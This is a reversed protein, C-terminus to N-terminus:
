RTPYKEKHQVGSGPPILDIVFDIAHRQAHLHDWYRRIDKHKTKKKPIIVVTGKGLTMMAM